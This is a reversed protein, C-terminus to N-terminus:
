SIEGQKTVRRTYWVALLLGIPFIIASLLGAKLAGDFANSVIGVLTPGGSCGLDGGLALLAFMATGGRPLARSSLSIAGPWMIGVSLGCLGCGLLSLAPLPAFVALLYSAICLVGSGIMFSELRIKDGYKAYFVRSCGMLIAFICPGTLDGVTKSVNLGLEAFTSAWQSMAQESAGACVMLLLFVWFIRKSFLQKLSHGENEEVLKNIPVRMFFFANLFPVIAWICALLKWNQIGFVVFYFTSVLIVAVHGWCYFSHLLSMTQEKRDNPTAEIIPSILVEIIGGGIAYLVVALVLGTYPNAFLGPLIALGVLGAAAFFHATVTMIRYGIRDALKTSLLDVLLQVGFNITILLTIRDLTISYSDQFTLFLLPAFNNVIAQTIYGIFCAYKTQTFTAKSRM